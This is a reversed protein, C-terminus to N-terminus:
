LRSHFLSFIFLYIKRQARRSPHLTVFPGSTRAEPALRFYITMKVM